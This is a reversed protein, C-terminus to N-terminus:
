GMRNRRSHAMDTSHAHGDPNLNPGPPAWRRISEAVAVTLLFMLIFATAITWRIALIVAVTTVAALAPLNMPASEVGLLTQRAPTGVTSTLFGGQWEGNALADLHQTPIDGLALVTLGALGAMFALRIILATDHTTLTKFGYLLAHATGEILDNVANKM